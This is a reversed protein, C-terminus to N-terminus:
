PVPIGQLLRERQTKRWRMQLWIFLVIFPLPSLGVLWGLWTPIAPPGDVQIPISGTVSGSDGVIQLELLWKGRIPPTANVDYVATSESDRVLHVDLVKADTEPAPILKARAFQLKMGRMESEITMNLAQGAHPLSYYSLLVRYPGIVAEQTALPSAGGATILFALGAIALAFFLM